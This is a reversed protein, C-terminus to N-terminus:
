LELLCPLAYETMWKTQLIEKATPRDGPRYALMWRLTDTFAEREEDNLMGLNRERRPSQIDREFREDWTPSRQSPLPVRDDTFFHLRADWKAWWEPPLQGLTNIQQSTIIDHTPLIEGFIPRQAVLNWIACALSWIDSSFTLPTSPEFRSEPPRIDVPTYSKVRTEETPNFSVGFDTLMIRAEEVTLEETPM